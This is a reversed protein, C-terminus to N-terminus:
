NHPTQNSSGASSALKDAHIKEVHATRRVVSAFTSHCYACKYPRKRVGAGVYGDGRLPPVPAQGDSDMAPVPAQGDSDVAPVDAQVPVPSSRRPPTEPPTKAVYVLKTGPHPPSFTMYHQRRLGKVTLGRGAATATEAMWNINDETLEIAEGDFTGMVPGPTPEALYEGLLRALAESSGAAETAQGSLNPKPNSPNDSM